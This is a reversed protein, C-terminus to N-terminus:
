RKKRRNYMGFGMLGAGLSGGGVLAAKGLGSDEGDFLGLNQTEAEEKAKKEAEKEADAKQKEEFEEFYEEKTKGKAKPAKPKPAKYDWDKTPKLSGFDEKTVLRWTDGEKKYYDYVGKVRRGKIENGEMFGRINALGIKSIKNEGSAYRDFFKLYGQLKAFIKQRLVLM